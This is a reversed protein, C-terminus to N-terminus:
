RLKSKSITLNAANTSVFISESGATKEGALGEEVGELFTKLWLELKDGPIKKAVYRGIKKGNRAAWDLTAKSSIIGALVAIIAAVISSVTM